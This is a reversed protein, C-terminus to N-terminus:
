CARCYVGPSMRRLIFMLVGWVDGWADPVPDLSAERELSRDFACAFLFGDTFSLTSHGSIQFITRGRRHSRRRPSISMAMLRTAPNTSGYEVLNKTSSTM